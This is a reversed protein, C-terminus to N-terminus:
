QVRMREWKQKYKIWCIEQWQEKNKCGVTRRISIEANINRFRRDSIQHWWIERGECRLM